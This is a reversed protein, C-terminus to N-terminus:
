EEGTLKWNGDADRCRTRRMGQPPQGSRVLWLDYERCFHGTVSRWTRVPRVTLEVGGPLVATMPVGSQVHELASQTTREVGPEAEAAALSSPLASALALACVRSRM